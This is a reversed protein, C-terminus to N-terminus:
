EDDYLLEEDFNEDELDDCDDLECEDREDSDQEGIARSEDDPGYQGFGQMVDLAWEDEFMIAGKRTGQIVRKQPRFASPARADWVRTAQARPKIGPGKDLVPLM